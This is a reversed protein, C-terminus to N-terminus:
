VVNEADSERVTRSLTIDELYISGKESPSDFSFSISSSTNQREYLMM